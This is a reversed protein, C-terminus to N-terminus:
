VARIFKRDQEMINRHTSMKKRMSEIEAHTLSHEGVDRGSVSMYVREYDRARRNFKWVREMLMHLVAGETCLIKIRTVFAQGGELKEDENAKRQEYKMKGFAFEIGLGATEPTCVVSTRLIHGRSEVAEQLANREELFDKCNGLVAHADLRPPLPQKGHAILKDKTKQSQKGQM